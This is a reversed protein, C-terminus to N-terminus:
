SFIHNEWIKRLDYWPHCNQSWNASIQVLYEKPGKFFFKPKDDWRADFKGEADFKKKNEINKKM